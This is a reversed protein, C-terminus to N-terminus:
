NSTGKDEIGLYDFGVMAIIAKRVENVMSFSKAIKSTGGLRLYVDKAANIAILIKEDSLNDLDLNAIDDFSLTLKKTLIYSVGMMVYFRLDSIQSKELSQDLQPIKLCVRRGLSAAKFFTELNGDEAFIMEYKADDSLLTSPRAKAQDPRNLLISMM